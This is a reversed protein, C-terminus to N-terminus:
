NAKQTFSLMKLHKIYFLFMLSPIHFLQVNLIDARLNILVFSTTDFIFNLLLASLNTIDFVKIQYNIM